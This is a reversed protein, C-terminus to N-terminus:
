SCNRAGMTAFGTHDGHGFRYNKNTVYPHMIQTAEHAHGLGLAHGVEHQMVQGWSKLGVYAPYLSEELPLDANLLVDAAVLKTTDGEPSWVTATGATSLSPFKDSTGWSVRINASNDTVYQFRLGSTASIRNFVRQLDARATNYGLAANYSWKIVKCSEWRAKSKTLWKWDTKKGARVESLVSTEPEGWPNSWHPDANVAPTVIPTDGKAKKSKVVKVSAVASTDKKVKFKKLRSAVVRFKLTTPKKATGRYKIRQTAGVKEVKVTAWKKGSKQQVRVTRKPYGKSWPVKGIVTFSQGTVVKKPVIIQKKSSGLAHAYGVVRDEVWDGDHAVVLNAGDSDVKGHMENDVTVAPVAFVATAVVAGFVTFVNM